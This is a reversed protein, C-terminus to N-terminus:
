ARLFRAACSWLGRHIECDEFIVNARIRIGNSIGHGDFTLGIQRDSHASGGCADGAQTVFASAL